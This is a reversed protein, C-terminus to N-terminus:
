AREGKPKNLLLSDIQGLVVLDEATLAEMFLGQGQIHLVMGTARVRICAPSYELLGQHAEIILRSDGEMHLRTEGTLTSRPVGLQRALKEKDM